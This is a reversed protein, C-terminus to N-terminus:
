SKGEKIELEILEFSPDWKVFHELDAMGQGCLDVFFMGRAPSVDVNMAGMHTVFHKTNKHQLAYIKMGGEGRVLM